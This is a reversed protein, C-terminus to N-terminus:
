LDNYRTARARGLDNAEDFFLRGIAREYRAEAAPQDVEDDLLVGFAYGGWILAPIHKPKIETIDEEENLLAIDKYKWIHLKQDDIPAAPAATSDPLPHVRLTTKNFMSWIRPRGVTNVGDCLMQDLFDDNNKQVLIGDHEWAPVFARWVKDTNDPLQYERTAVQFPTREERRLSMLHGRTAIDDLVINVLRNVINRTDQDGDQMLELVGEVIEKKKM